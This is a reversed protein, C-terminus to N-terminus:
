KEQAVNDGEEEYKEVNKNVLSAIIHLANRLGEIKCVCERCRIADFLGDKGKYYDVMEEWNEIEAKIEHVIIKLVEKTESEM